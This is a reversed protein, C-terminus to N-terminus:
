FDTASASTLNKSFKVTVKNDVGAVASILRPPTTDNVLVVIPPSISSGGDNDTALATLTYRGEIVNNWVVRYPTTLSEGLKVNGQFFEVKAVTGDSDSATATVTINAGANFSAGDLPSAINVAPTVNHGRLDLDFSLDSSSATAQHIEVAIVNKGNVLLSAPATSPFYVQEDANPIAGSAFTSFSIIHTASQM